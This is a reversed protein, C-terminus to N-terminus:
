KVASKAKMALVIEKKWGNLWMKM